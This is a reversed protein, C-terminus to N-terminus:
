RRIEINLLYSNLEWDFVNFLYQKFFYGPTNTCVQLALARPAQPLLSYHVRRRCKCPLPKCTQCIAMAPSSPVLRRNRKSDTSYGSGSGLHGTFLGLICWHFSGEVLLGHKTGPKLEQMLETHGQTLRELVTQGWENM